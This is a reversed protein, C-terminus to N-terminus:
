LVHIIILSTSIPIMIKLSTPKQTKNIQANYKLNIIIHQNEKKENLNNKNVYSLNTIHIM